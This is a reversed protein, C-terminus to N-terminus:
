SDRPSPSTYLLCAQPEGQDQGPPGQQRQRQTDQQRHGGHPMKGTRTSNKRPHYNSRGLHRGEKRPIKSEEDPQMEILTKYGAELEEIKEEMKIRLNGIEKARKATPIVTVANYAMNIYRLTKTLPGKHALILREIQPITKGDFLGKYTNSATAEM